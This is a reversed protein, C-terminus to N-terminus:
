LRGLVIASTPIGPSSAVLCLEPDTVQNCSQGRLQRVGEIVQNLGQMYAESLNGGSTNTPLSGKLALGGWAVFPGSEGRDCFGFDQLGSFSRVPLITM